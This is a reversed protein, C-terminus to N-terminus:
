IVSKFTFGQEMGEQNPSMAWTVQARSSENEKCKFWTFNILPNSAIHM